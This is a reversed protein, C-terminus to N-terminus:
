RPPPPTARKLLWTRIGRHRWDLRREVPTVRGFVPRFDCWDKLGLLDASRTGLGQHATRLAALRHNRKCELLTGPLCWPRHEGRGTRSAISSRCRGRRDSFQTRKEFLNLRYRRGPRDSHSLFASIFAVSECSARAISAMDTGPM